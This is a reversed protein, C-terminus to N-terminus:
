LPKVRRRRPLGIFIFVAAAAVSAPVAVLVAFAAALFGIVKEVMDWTIPFTSEGRLVHVGRLEEVEQVAARYAPVDDPAVQARTVQLRYNVDLRGEEEVGEASFHFWPCDIVDEAAAIEWGPDALVSIQEREDLGMPLALPQQRAGVPLPLWDFIVADPILLRERGDGMPQWAALWRYREAIDVVNGARDDRIAMAAIPSVSLGLQAYQDVYGAQLHQLSTDALMARVDEARHARYVTEVTIRSREPDDRLDYSVRLTAQGQPLAPAPVDVLAGMGPSLVLAKGFAPLWAQDLAGGQDSETPDVWREVGGVRAVTVVHDFIAPSPLMEAIGAGRERSVLAPWAELGRARLLAVLLLTKDKCDGYRRELVVLPPSPVHSGDGLEIGFYRVEDQVWRLSALAFDEANPHQAWLQDALAQIRAPAPEQVAYVQQAWTAVEAWSTFDSVQVWPFPDYGEPQSDEEDVALRHRLDWRAERWDVGVERVTPVPVGHCAISLPRAPQWLLRLQRREAAVGWAMAWGEGYHGDFVPNMGDVSWAVDVVDGVRVDPPVVVLTRTGDFIHQWLSAEERIVTAHAGELRDQWAGDRWVRLHHVKVREWSPDFAIEVRSLGDLGARTVIRYTTHAYRQVDHAGIRVEDDVLLYQASEVAAGAPAPTGVPPEIPEVWAPAPGVSVNPDDLDWALVPPCLLLPLAAFLLM